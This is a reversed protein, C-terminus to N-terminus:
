IKVRRIGVITRVVYTSYDKKAIKEIIFIHAQRKNIKISMIKTNRDFITQINRHTFM